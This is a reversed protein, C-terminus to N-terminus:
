HHKACGMKSMIPPFKVDQGHGLLVGLVISLDRTTTFVIHITNQTIFVHVGLMEEDVFAHPLIMDRANVLFDQFSFTVLQDGSCNM